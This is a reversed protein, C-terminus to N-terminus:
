KNNGKQASPIKTLKGIESEKVSMCGNDAIRMIQVGSALERTSMDYKKLIMYDGYKRLLITDQSDKLVWFKTDTKAYSKGILFCLVLPVAFVLFSHIYDFLKGKGSRLRAEEYVEYLTEERPPKTYLMKEVEFWYNGKAQCSLLPLVFYYVAILGSTIWFFRQTEVSFDSYALLFLPPLLFLLISSLVRWFVHNEKKMAIAIHIYLYFPYLFLAVAATALIIILFNLDIFRMPIDYYSSYGAEFSFAVLYGAFPIIALLVGDKEIFWKKYFAKEDM